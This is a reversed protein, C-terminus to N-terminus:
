LSVWLNSRKSILYMKRVKFLNSNLKQTSPSVVTIENQVCGIVNVNFMYVRVCIKPIFVNRFCLQNKECLCEEQIAQFITNEVEHVTAIM